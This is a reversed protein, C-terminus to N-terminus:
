ANEESCDFPRYRGALEEAARLGDMAASTIGGAYGAGEGCPFLGKVASEMHEDRNIRVPSSTRSEVAALVADPELALIAEALRANDPGYSQNHLDAAMCFVPGEAGAPLKATNVEYEFIRFDSM